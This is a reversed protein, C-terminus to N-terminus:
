DFNFANNPSDVEEFALSSGMGRAPEKRGSSATFNNTELHPSKLDFLSSQLAQHSDQRNEKEWDPHFPHDPLGGEELILSLSAGPGDLLRNIRQLESDMRILSTGEPDEISPDDAQLRDINFTTEHRRAKQGSNWAPKNNSDRKVPEVGSPNTQERPTDGPIATLPCPAPAEDLIFNPQLPGTEFNSIPQPPQELEDKHLPAEPSIQAVEFLSAIYEDVAQPDDKPNGKFSFHGIREGCTKATEVM